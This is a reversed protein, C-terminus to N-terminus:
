LAVYADASGVSAQFRGYQVLVQQGEETDSSRRAYRLAEEAYSAAEEASIGVKYGFRLVAVSALARMKDAENQGAKSELLQFVKKCQRFAEEGNTRGIWTAS